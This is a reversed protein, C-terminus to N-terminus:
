LVVFYKSPWLAVTPPATTVRVFSCSWASRKMWFAVPMIM